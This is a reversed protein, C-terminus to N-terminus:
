CGLYKFFDFDAHKRLGSLDQCCIGVFAGTFSGYKSYEDSLQSADLIPGLPIWTDEDSSYYFQLKDHDVMVKLYCRVWGKICIEHELPQDFVGNDCTVIGLSKGGVNNDYSIKLYFFNKTDYFCVLGAMQQHSDPEFEVCTSATFKFSQWRRAIFSQHHCSSLSEHGKLRLYGPREILSASNEDLPIRLTQFHMDLTTSNFDDRAPMSTLPYVPLLPAPVITSPQNTGNALYLWNDEKWEVKQIATERGLTCRGLTTLPRGCLHVMYWEGNQTEVIDAHGAKQLSLEPNDKSTLIPNNPHSEYPGTLIKSRFIRASHEYGTGGEAVLLYYYGNRKYLHPGETCFLGKGEFINIVPGILMKKVPCYEQLVIGGFRNLGKRNEWLVNTVWKKGYDDHFLSPDFGSSNLYVPDSWEGRIDQATVVYNHCDKWIGSHNIVNTYVLYYTGNDYSLCPAWVGGSSPVGTMDLQSTRNLPHAILEWHILDKSHHIQVGPFWEFTSNAIYYDEGVRIISPDPNFGNIIPNKITQM